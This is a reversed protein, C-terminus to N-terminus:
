DSIFEFRLLCQRLAFYLLAERVLLMRQGIIWEILLHLFVKRYWIENWASSSFFHDSGLGLLRTTLCLM